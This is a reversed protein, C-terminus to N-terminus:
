KHELLHTGMFCSLEDAITSDVGKSHSQAPFEGTSVDRAFRRFAEVALTSFDAYRRVFSPCFEDFIGLMDQTVLGQGSCFPGSGIGITPISLAKTIIGTIEKPVCEIVIATAGAEEFAIADELLEQARELTRGQVQYHGTRSAINKTLGIHAFVPIGSDVIAAVTGAISRDGEIEVANAGGEIVMRAANDIGRERTSCSQFPMAALVLCNGSGNRVARTHYIIEDVTVSLVSERGLAVTGLADSVFAIDIWAEDAWKATPYDHASLMTIKEGRQAKRVLHLPTVKKREGLVAVPRDDERGPAEHGRNMHTKVLTSFMKESFM